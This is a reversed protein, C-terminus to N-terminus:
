PTDLIRSQKVVARMSGLKVWASPIVQSQRLILWGTQAREGDRRRAKRWRTGEACQSVPLFEALRRWRFIARKGAAPEPDPEV